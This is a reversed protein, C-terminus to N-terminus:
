LTARKEVVVSYIQREYQRGIEQQTVYDLKVCLGAEFAEALVHNLEQVKGRVRDALQRDAEIVILDAM